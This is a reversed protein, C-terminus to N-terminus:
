LQGAGNGEAMSGNEREWKEEGGVDDTCCCVLIEEESDM